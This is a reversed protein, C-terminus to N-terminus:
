FALEGDRIVTKGDIDVTAKNVPFNFGGPQNNKGGLLENNGFSLWVMGAAANPRYHETVKMAPNLGISVSGLIDKPGSYSAMTEQYCEGGSEAKFNAIKGDRVDFSAGVLQVDPRCRERIAFVKGEGSTELPAFSLVGGPLTVARYQFVNGPSKAQTVIGADVIVPRGHLSFTLDTGTPSTIRVKSSHELMEKLQNGKDSIQRYDANVADWHMKELEPYPVQYLLADAKNPFDIFLFRLKSSNLAGLVIEGSKNIEALREQSVGAITAPYDELDPMAIWVDVGKIWDVLYTPQQKLYKEPVDANIARAVRDTNILMQVMGGAM